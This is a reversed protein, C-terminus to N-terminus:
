LHIFVIYGKIYAQPIAFLVCFSTHAIELLTHNDIDVRTWGEEVGAGRSLGGGGECVYVLVM